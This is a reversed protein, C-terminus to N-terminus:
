QALILTAAKEAIMITPANTNGSILTPMISADVVRLSPVGHVRLQSDVVANADTGMRCTSVPHYLTKDTNRAFALLADDDDAKAGPQIEGDLHRTLSAQAAVKRAHRLGELLAAADNPADLYNPRIGPHAFPDASDIFIEGRSEPRLQCVGCTMGPVRDIAGTEFNFTGMIVHFQIDPHAPNKTTPLFANVQSASTTLLGRRQFVYRLAERVAKLGRTSENFTEIGKVRWTLSVMYHDQLNRGVGPLDAHVDIGLGQLRSAEGIGSHQLFAPSGVAGASVIIERAATLTVDKGRHRILVGAARRGAFTLKLAHARTFVSLNSRKRAPKLYANATSSRIGNRVTQQFYGVGAQEEQNFDNRLPFGAEASAKLFADALPHRGSLDTVALPGDIGHWTDPGRAQDEAKRFCPLVDEYGWGPNGLDRWEDYDRAQGRIYLLGNIASSGGLVKGRPWLIKRHGSSAEAETYYLWNGRPHARNWVYGAPIHFFPHRGEGGAEILAVRYQGSATLRNALVCGASGAGVVIYDFQLDSM